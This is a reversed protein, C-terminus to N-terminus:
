RAHTAQKRGGKEDTEQPWNVVDYCFLANQERLYLKGGSIVPPGLKAEPQPDPTFRGRLEFKEPTARVLSM